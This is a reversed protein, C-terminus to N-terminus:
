SVALAGKPCVTACLGCGKCRKQDIAVVKKLQIVAIVNPDPCAYVCLRCGNCKEEDVRAAVYM